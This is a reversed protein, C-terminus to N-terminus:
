GLKGQTTLYNKRCVTRFDCFKCPDGPAIEFRGAEIGDGIGRLLTEFARGHEKWWGADFERVYRKEDASRAPEEVFFFAAEAAGALKVYIPAQVKRADEALTPLQTKFAGSMRRKYDVIRRRKGHRDIRDARGVFEFGALRGAVEVEFEAPAWDPRAREWAVFAELHRVMQRRRAERLAPYLVPPADEFARATAEAVPIEHKHHLELARHQLTGIERADLDEAEEPDDLPFLGLVYEAFYQFPCANYKELRTPSMRKPRAIKGVRGEHTSLTKGEIRAIARRARRYREVDRGFVRLTTETLKPDALLLAEERTMLAPDLRKLKQHLSRPVEPETDALDFVFPSRDRTKGDADSRQYVLVLRDTAARKMLHFLLREEDYGEHRVAIKHGRLDFVDRRAADSIFPEELIFRPFSHSNLGLVFLTHFRLGRAGMVDTVTVGGRQPAPAEARGLEREFAEHFEAHASEGDPMPFDYIEAYTSWAARPPVGDVKACLKEFAARLDRVAREPIDLAGEERGLRVAGDLRALWTARGRGIRRAATIAPWWTSDAAGFFPSRLVDLVAGRPFDDLGLRYLTRTFKWKPEDALPRGRPPIFPIRNEEFIQEVHRAYPELTRAVVGIRDPRVGGALIKKAVGWVEDREGAANFVEVRPEPAADTVAEVSAAAATAYSKLFKDAFAMPGPEYPVLLTVEELRRVLDWQIQTMDYFGYVFTRAAPPRATKFLDSADMLGRARLAGEYHRYLCMVDNLKLIDFETLTTIKQEILEHVAAVVAEPEAEVAADKLDRIAGLLAAAVDYTPTCRGLYPAETMHERLLGAVLREFYLPERVLARDAPATEAALHYLHMFQVGFLGDPFREAAAVKLHRVLRASPAVVRTPEFRERDALADFLAREIATFPGHIVRM